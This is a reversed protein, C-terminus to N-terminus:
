RFPSVAIAKPTTPCQYQCVGCGVCGDDLVMPPGADVLAIAGSGIPCTDVCVSCDDRRTRTCVSGDVRALGMRIERVEDVLNLAGSPCVKMCELGECVVCASRDPDIMPTGHTTSDGSAWSFIAGAPCAEVCQGSRDCAEVFARELLAGPPRLLTRDGGGGDLHSSLYDGLPELLRALGERFFARRNESDSTM